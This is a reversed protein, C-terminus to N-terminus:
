SVAYLGPSPQFNISWTLITYLQMCECMNNSYGIISDIICFNEDLILFYQYFVLKLGYIMDIFRNIPNYLRNISTYLRNIPTHLRNIPYTFGAFGPPKQNRPRFGLFWSVLFWGTGDKSTSFHFFVWFANYLLTIIINEKWSLTLM